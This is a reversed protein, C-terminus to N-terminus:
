DLKRNIETEIISQIMQLDSNIEELLDLYESMVIHELLKSKMTDYAEKAEAYKAHKKAERQVMIKQLDLLTKYKAQLEVDQDIIKELEKFRQIQKDNRILDILKELSNLKIM